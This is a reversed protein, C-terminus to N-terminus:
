NKYQVQKRKRQKKQLAYLVKFKRFLYIFLLCFPPLNPSRWRSRYNLACDQLLGLYKKYDSLILLLLAEEPIMQRSTKRCVKIISFRYSCFPKEEQVAITCTLQWIEAGAVVRVVADLLRTLTLEITNL